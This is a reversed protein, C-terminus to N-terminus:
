FLKCLGFGYLVFVAGQFHLVPLTARTPNRAMLTVAPIGKRYLDKWVGQVKLQGFPTPKRKPSLVRYAHLCVYIYPSYTYLYVYM